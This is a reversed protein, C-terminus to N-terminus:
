EPIEANLILESAERCRPQISARFPVPRSNSPRTDAVKTSWALYVVYSFFDGDFLAQLEVPKGDEGLAPSIDFVSLVSAVTIFLSNDSLYRGPCVRRGFGFSAVSPDQIDPNIQGDKLFREPM